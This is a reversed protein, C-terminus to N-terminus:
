DEDEHGSIPVGYNIPTSRGSGPGGVQPRSARGSADGYPPRPNDPGRRPHGQRRRLAEHRGGPVCLSRVRTKGRAAAKKVRACPNAPILGDYVAQNLAASLVSQMVGVTNPHMGEELKRAKLARVHVVSVDRLRLRKFFPLFHNRVTREYRDYTSSAVQYRATGSLWRELFESVTLRQPDSFLAGKSQDALAIFKADNAEQATRGYFSVQRRGTPTDLTARTEYRGDARKRADTGAGNPNKRDKSM